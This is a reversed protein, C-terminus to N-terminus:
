PPRSVAVPPMLLQHKFFTMWRVVGAKAQAGTKWSHLYVCDYKLSRWLREIFINDLCRVKGDMSIRIGVRQLRDTRAFSTFQATAIPAYHVLPHNGRAAM